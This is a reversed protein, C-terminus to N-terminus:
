LYLIQEKTRETEQEAKKQRRKKKPVILKNADFTVAMGQSNTLTLDSSLILRNEGVPQRSELELQEKASVMKKKSWLGELSSLLLMAKSPTDVAFECLQEKQHDYWIVKHRYGAELLGLMSSYLLTFLAERNKKTTKAKEKQKEKRKAANRYHFSTGNKKRSKSLAGDM